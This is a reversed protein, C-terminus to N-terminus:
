IGPLICYIWVSRKNLVLNATANSANLEHIEVIFKVCWIIIVAIKLVKFLTVPRKRLWKQYLPQHACCDVEDDRQVWFNKELIFFLALHESFYPKSIYIKKNQLIKDGIPMAFNEKIQFEKRHITRFKFYKCHQSKM